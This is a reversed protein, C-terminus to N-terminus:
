DGYPLQRPMGELPLYYIKVDANYDPIYQGHFQVGNEAALYSWGEVFEVEGTDTNLEEIAKPVEEGDIFARITSVDPISQLPFVDLLSNLLDGLQQLSDAFDAVECDGTDDEQAIDLYLGNSDNVFWQYRSVGWTTAGGSNCLDTRPGIVAFATRTNFQSFLEAYEEPVAEGQPLRRSTDGEDTVIIPILTSDERILGTNTGEHSAEFQNNVYCDDPPNEVARCMAM